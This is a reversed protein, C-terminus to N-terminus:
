AQQQLEGVFAELRDMIECNTNLEASPHYSDVAFLDFQLNPTLM